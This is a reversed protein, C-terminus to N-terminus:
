RDRAALHAAFCAGLRLARSVEYDTLEFVRLKTWTDAFRHDNEAIEVSNAQDPELYDIDRVAIGATHLVARADGPLEPTAFVVFPYKSGSAKISQAIVLAGAVRRSPPTLVDPGPIASPALKSPSRSASGSLPPPPKGALYDTRTLLTAWAKKGETATTM